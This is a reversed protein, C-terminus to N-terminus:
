DASESPQQDPAANPSPNSGGKTKPKERPKGCGHSPTFSKEEMEKGTCTTYSKGSNRNIKREETKWKTKKVLEKKGYKRDLNTAAVSLRQFLRPFITHTPHRRCEYKYLYLRHAQRSNGNARGYEFILDAYEARTYEEMESPSISKVLLVSGAMKISAAVNGVHLFRSCFIHHPMSFRAFFITLSPFLTQKTDHKCYDVALTM